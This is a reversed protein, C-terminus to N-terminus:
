TFIWSLHNSFTLNENNVIINFPHCTALTSWFTQFPSSSILFKDCLINLSKKSNAFSFIFKLIAGCDIKGVM